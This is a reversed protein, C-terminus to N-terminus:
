RESAEMAEDLKRQAQKKAEARALIKDAPDLRKGLEEVADLDGNRMAVALQVLGVGAELARGAFEIWDAGQMSM